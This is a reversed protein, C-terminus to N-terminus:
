GPPPAPPSSPQVPAPAPEPAPAPASAPPAERVCTSEGPVCVYTQEAGCGRAAYANGGLEQVTIQEPPCRLDYSGRQRVTEPYGGGRGPAVCACLALVALTFLRVNM